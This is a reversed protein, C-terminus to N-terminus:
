ACCATSRATPPRSAHGAARAGVARSVVIDRISQSSASTRSATRRPRRRAGGGRRGALRDDPLDPDHGPEQADGRALHKPIRWTASAGAPSGTRRRCRTCRSPTRRRRRRVLRAVRPPGRRLHLVRVARRLHSVHRADRCLENVARLSAESLVAGSPNNPSITVIARTRPTMAGRSRRSTAASLSRRDARARGPLRGDRDGDRPQLLVAGAPHNRRRAVTIALVAHMFAM